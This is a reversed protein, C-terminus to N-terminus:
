IRVTGCLYVLRVNEEMYTERMALIRNDNSSGEGPTPQKSVQSTKLSSAMHPLRNTAWEQM